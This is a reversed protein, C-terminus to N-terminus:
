ASPDGSGLALGAFTLKAADFSLSFSLANEDGSAVFEIRSTVMSSVNGSASAIRLERKPGAVPAITITGDAYGAALENGLLDSVSRPAPSNGFSVVSPGATPSAMFSLRVLDLVGSTFSQNAPKTVLIGLQGSGTRNTNVVLSASPDASGLAVGTFMLRSPDFNLSFSIANEGGSAVFRVTTTIADGPQGSTNAVSLSRTNVASKALPSAQGFAGAATPGSAPTSPDLGVSYRAVQTADAANIIGNGFTSRPACDARQFEAPSLDIPSISGVVLLGMVTVDAASVINNSTPRPAVDGEMGTEMPPVIVRFSKSDSLNPLNVGNDTVKVTVTNTGELQSGPVPWNVTGNSSVTLGAPGSVLSYTLQNAPLDADTASLLLSLTGGSSVQQDSVTALVPAQNVENVIVQFSKTASLVPSGNDTVSVSITYTAPGQAETPTWIFIGTTANISAGVPAGADLTYTLTDTPDPDTAAIQFTLPSAEDVTKIPIDALSPALNTVDTAILSFSATASMPPSGNDTVRVTISSTSVVQQATPAWTFAGTKPDITAGAPAGQDLSFSLSQTAPCDRDFATVVFNLPVGGKIPKPDIPDIVPPSNTELVTVSFTTSGLSTLTSNVPKVEITIPYTGPGACETPRWVFVGFVSDVVAGEPAPYGLTYTGNVADLAPLTVTLPTDEIVTQDAIRPLTIGQIRIDDIFWGNPGSNNFYFGIQVTQSAYSGLDISSQAWIAGGSSSPSDSITKWDNTGAKIQVVGGARDYWQWFRLRATNSPVTFPPSTLRGYTGSPINGKLVTAAVQTGGHAAQPGSVPVGVEWAGGGVSWDGFGTEFGEPNNFTASGTVIEVALDDIYWGLGESSDNSYLIFGVQVTRGAFAKLDVTQPTWVGGGSREVPSTLDQWQNTGIKIQVIGVDSSGSGAISFWQWFRLRSNGTPLDIPPSVLRARTNPPYNGNLITGAMVRGSHAQVAANTAAGIQWVGGEVSWDDLAGTSEFNESWTATPQSFCHPAICSFLVTVLFTTKWRVRLFQFYVLTTERKM